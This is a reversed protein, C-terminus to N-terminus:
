ALNNKSSTGTQFWSTWISSRELRTPQLMQTEPIVCYGGFAALNTNSQRRRRPNYRFPVESVARHTRRVDIYVTQLRRAPACSALPTSTTGTDCSRVYEPWTRTSTSRCREPRTTVVCYVVKSSWGFSLLWSKVLRICSSTQAIIEQGVLLRMQRLLMLQYFYTSTVKAIHQKMSLESNLMVGLNILSLESKDASKISM